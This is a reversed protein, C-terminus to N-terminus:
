EKKFEAYWNQAIVIGSVNEQVVRKVLLFRQGDPTLDFGEPWGFPM